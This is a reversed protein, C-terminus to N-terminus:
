TRLVLGVGGLVAGAPAAWTPTRKKSAFTIRFRAKEGLDFKRFVSALAVPEETPAFHGGREM